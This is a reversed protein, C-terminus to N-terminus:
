PLPTHTGPAEEVEWGRVPRASRARKAHGLGVQASRPGIHHTGTGGGEKWRALVQSRIRWVRGDHSSTLSDHGGHPFVGARRHRDRPPPGHPHSPGGPHRDRGRRTPSHVPPQVIEWWPSKSALSGGSYLSRNMTTAADPEPRPDEDPELSRNWSMAPSRTAIPISPNSTPTTFGGRLRWFGDDARLVSGDGTYYGKGLRV